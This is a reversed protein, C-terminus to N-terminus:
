LIYTNRSVKLSYNLRLIKVEKCLRSHIICASRTIWLLRCKLINLVKIKLKHLKSYHFLIFHNLSLHIIQGRSFHFIETPSKSIHLKYYSTNTFCANILNLAGYENSFYASIFSRSLPYRTTIALHLCLLSLSSSYM